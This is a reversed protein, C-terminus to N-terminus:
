DPRNVLCNHFISCSTSISQMRATRNEELLNEHVRHVARRMNELSRRVYVPMACVPSSWPVAVSVYLGGPQITWNPNTATGSTGWATSPALINDTWPTGDTSLPAPIVLWKVSGNISNVGFM